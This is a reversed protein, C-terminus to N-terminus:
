LKSALIVGYMGSTLWDAPRARRAEEEKEKPIGIAVASKLTRLSILGQSPWFCRTYQEFSTQYPWHADGVLRRFNADGKLIVVAAENYESRLNDPLQWFFHPTTYFSSPVVRLHKDALASRLRKALESVHDQLWDLIGPVDSETVDSVFVPADKVHLVVSSVNALRFLADALVLDSIVEPGHNDLVLIVPRGAAGLLLDLALSSNDAIISGQGGGAAFDVKGGSLSLDAQNGWLSRLLCSELARRRDGHDVPTSEAAQVVSLLPEVSSDIMGLAASMSKKKQPEFPDYDAAQGGLMDLLELLRKYMYNEVVWWPATHWTKGATIYRALVQNWEQAGVRASLGELPRLDGGDRMEAQLARIGEVLVTSQAMADPLTELVSDMIKPMRKTVTDLTSVDEPRASPQFGDIACLPPASAIPDPLSQVDTVDAAGSPTAYCLAMPRSNKSSQQSWGVQGRVASEQTKLALIKGPAAPALAISMDARHGGSSAFATAQQLRRRMRLGLMAALTLLSFGISSMGFPMSNDNILVKQV